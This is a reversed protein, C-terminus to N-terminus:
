ATQRKIRITKRQGHPLREIEGDIYKNKMSAFLSGKISMVIQVVSGPTGQLLASRYPLIDYFYTNLMWYLSAKQKKVKDGLKKLGKDKFELETIKLDKDINIESMSREGLITTMKQDVVSLLERKYKKDFKTENDEIEDWIEKTKEIM